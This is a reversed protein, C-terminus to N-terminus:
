VRGGRSRVICALQVIERARVVRFFPRLTDAVGTKRGRPSEHQILSSNEAKPSMPARSFDAETGAYCRQPHHRHPLAPAPTGRQCRAGCICRISHCLACSSCVARGGGGGGGGGRGRRRGHGRLRMCSPWHWAPTNRRGVCRAWM